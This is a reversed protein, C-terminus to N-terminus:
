PRTRQVDNGRGNAVQSIHYRTRLLNELGNLDDNGLIRTVAFLEQLM